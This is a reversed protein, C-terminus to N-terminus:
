GIRLLVRLEVLGLFRGAVEVEGSPMVINDGKTLLLVINGPRTLLAGGELGRTWSDEGQVAVVARGAGGLVTVMPLRSTEGGAGGEGDAM